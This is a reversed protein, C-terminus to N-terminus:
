RARSSPTFSDNDHNYEKLRGAAAAIVAQCLRNCGRARSSPTFSDNDHNYEKLRGAAAAIM